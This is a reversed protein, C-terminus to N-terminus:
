AAIYAAIRGWSKRAKPGRLKGQRVKGMFGAPLGVQRQVESDSLGENALKSELGALLVEHDIQEYPQFTQSGRSGSVPRAPEPVPEPAPAATPFEITPQSMDGTLGALQAELEGLRAYVDALTVGDVWVMRRAKMGTGELYSPVVEAHVRRKLTPVSVQMREAAEAMTHWM